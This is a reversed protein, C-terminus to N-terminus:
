NTPEARVAKFSDAIRRLEDDAVSDGTVLVTLIGDKEWVLARAPKGDDRPQFDIFSGQRNTGNPENRGFDIQAGAGPKMMGPPMFPPRGQGAGNAPGGAARTGPTVAPRSPLPKPPTAQSGPKAQPETFNMRWRMGQIFYGMAGQVAQPNFRQAGQVNFPSAGGPGFPTRLQYVQVQKGEATKVSSLQFQLGFPGPMGAGNPGVNPGPNNGGPRSGPPNGPGPYTLAGNELKYGPPLYEPLRPAFGLANTAEDLTLYSESAPDYFSNLKEGVPTQTGNQTPAIAVPTANADNPVSLGSVLVLGLILVIVLGMGAPVLRLLPSPSRRMPQSSAGSLQAQLRNRLKNQFAPPANFSAKTELWDAFDADQSLAVPDEDLPQERKFQALFRKWSNM